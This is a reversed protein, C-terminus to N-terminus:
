MDMVMVQPGFTAILPFGEELRLTLQVMKYAMVALM